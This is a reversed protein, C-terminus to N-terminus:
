TKVPKLANAAMKLAIRRRHIWAALQPEHDRLDHSLKMALDHWDRMCDFVGSSRKGLLDWLIGMLARVTDEGGQPVHQHNNKIPLLWHAWEGMLLGIFQEHSAVRPTREALSELSEGVMSNVDPYSQVSRQSDPVEFWHKLIFQNWNPGSDLERFVAMAPHVLASLVFRANESIQWKGDAVFAVPSLFRLSEGKFNVAGQLGTFCLQPFLPLAFRPLSDLRDSLPQNAPPIWALIKEITGSGSPLSRQCFTVLAQFLKKSDVQSNDSSVILRKYWHLAGEPLDDGLHTIFYLTEGWLGMQILENMFRKIMDHTRDVKLLSRILQTLRLMFKEKAGRAAERSLANFIVALPTGNTEQSDAWKLDLAMSTGLMWSILWKQNFNSVEMVMERAIAITAATIADSDYFLLGRVQIEKFCSYRIEVDAKELAKQAAQRYITRDFDFFRRGDEDKLLNLHLKRYVESSDREWLQWLTITEPVHEYKINGKKTTKKLVKFIRNVSIHELFFRLVSVFDPQSLKSFYIAVYIVYRNLLASARQNLDDSLKLLDLYEEVPVDLPATGLDNLLDNFTDDMIRDRVLGFCSEPDYDQSLPHRNWKRWLDSYDNPFHSRILAEVPDIKLIKINGQLPFRNVTEPHILLVLQINRKVLMQRLPELSTKSEKAFHSLFFKM